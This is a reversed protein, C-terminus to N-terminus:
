FQLKVSEHISFDRHVAFDWQAAGFGRLANRGLNGQRLPNGSADTPAPCFPGTSQLGDPCGGSVAGPTNNIAKGGPYQSGHLYLPIGPVIDPRALGSGGFPILNVASFVNVTTPSWAQFVNQLSWGQLLAKAVTNIAPTPIDYTLGASVAHRVDFDSSGRNSNAGDQRIFISSSSFTSDSATDI